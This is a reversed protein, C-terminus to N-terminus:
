KNIMSAFYGAGFGNDINVVVVGPSCSNLMTLLPAVGKFSAGYGVSTPVAIIPKGFLGSVVSPLVGDMGAVVILVNANEIQNKNNLLRHLGAVGVDYIKEVKNGMSEAVVAAEEAVNIDSTGATLVLIKNKTKSDFKKKNIIITKSKDNYKANKIHKKVAKFMEATARTALVVSNGDSLKKVIEVVQNVTKNQCFVVEPFGKRLARHHDIKAFGLDEFPLFKLKKIAEGVEFKGNKLDTMIKKIEQEHM